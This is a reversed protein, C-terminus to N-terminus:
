RRPHHRHRRFPDTASTPSTTTPTSTTSTTTPTTTTTTTTTTAPAVLDVRIWFPGNPTLVLAADRVATGATLLSSCHHRGGGFGGGWGRGRFGGPGFHRSVDKRLDKASAGAFSFHCDIKTFRSVTGSVTSGNTETITLVGNAFSTVTGANSATASAPDKAHHRGRDNGGRFALSVAPVAAALAAIALLTLMTRRM